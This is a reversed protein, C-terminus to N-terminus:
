SSLIVILQRIQNEIVRFKKGALIAKGEAGQGPPSVIETATQKHKALDPFLAFLLDNLLQRRQNLMIAPQSGAVGGPLVVRSGAVM